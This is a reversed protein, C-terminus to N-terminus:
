VKASAPDPRFGKEVLIQEAQSKPMFPEDPSFRVPEDYFDTVTFGTEPEIYIPMRTEYQGAKFEEIFEDEVVLFWRRKRKRRFPWWM